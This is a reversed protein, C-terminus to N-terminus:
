KRCVTHFLLTRSIQNGRRWMLFSASWFETFRRKHAIYRPNFWTMCGVVGYNGGSINFCEGWTKWRYLLTVVLTFLNNSSKFESLKPVTNWCLFFFCFLVHPCDITCVHLSWYTHENCTFKFLACKLSLFLYQGESICRALAYSKWSCNTYSLIKTCSKQKSGTDILYGFSQWKM